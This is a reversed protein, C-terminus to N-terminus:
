HKKDILKTREVDIEAENMHVMFRYRSLEVIVGYMAHVRQGCQRLLWRRFIEM